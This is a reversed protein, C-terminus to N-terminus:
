DERELANYEEICNQIRDTITELWSLFELENLEMLDKFDELNVEYKTALDLVKQKVQKDEIGELVFAATCAFLLALDKDIKM